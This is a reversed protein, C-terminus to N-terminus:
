VTVPGAFRENSWLKGENRKTTIRLRGGEVTTEIRALDAAAAEVEVKQPSGQRLVVRASNALSLKTFDGVTRAERAPAAALHLVPVLLALLLTLFFFRLTKM